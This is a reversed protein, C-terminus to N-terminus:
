VAYENLFDEVDKRRLKKVTLVEGDDNDVVVCWSAKEYVKVAIEKATPYEDTIDKGHESEEVEEEEEIAEDPVSAMSSLPKSLTNDGGKDEPPPVSNPLPIQPKRISTDMKGTDELEEEHAREFKGVFIKCLDIESEVVDGSKYRKGNQIHSGVRKKLRFKM